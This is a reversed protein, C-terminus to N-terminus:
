SATFPSAMEQHSCGARLALEDCKQRRMRNTRCEASLIRMVDFQVKNNYQNTLPVIITNNHNHDHRDPNVISFSISM